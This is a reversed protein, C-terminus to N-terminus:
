RCNGGGDLHLYYFGIRKRKTEDCHETEITQYRLWIRIRIAYIFPSSRVSHALGLLPNRKALLVVDGAEGSM